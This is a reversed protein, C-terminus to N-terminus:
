GNRYWNIQRDIDRLQDRLHKIPGAATKGPGMGCFAIEREIALRRLTLALAEVKAEPGSRRM